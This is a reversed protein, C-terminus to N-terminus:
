VESRKPMWGTGGYRERDRMVCDYLAQLAEAATTAPTILSYTATDECDWSSEGKSPKPIGVDCDIHARRVRTAWPRRPFKWVAEALKVRVLYDAEPMKLLYDGESIVEESYEPEGWITEAICWHRYWGKYGKCDFCDDGAHHFMVRCSNEFIYFGTQHEWSHRLAQKDSLFNEFTLFFWVCFFAVSFEIDRQNEGAFLNMQLSLRNRWGFAWALMIQKSYPEFSDDYKRHLWLRGERLLSGRPNEDHDENLNQWHCYQHFWRSIGFNLIRIRM